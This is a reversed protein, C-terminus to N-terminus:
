QLLDPLKLHAHDSSPLEFQVRETPYGLRLVADAYAAIQPLYEANYWGGDRSRSLLGWRGDTPRDDTDFRGSRFLRVIGANVADFFLDIDGPDIANKTEILSGTTMKAPNDERLEASCRELLERFKQLNTM